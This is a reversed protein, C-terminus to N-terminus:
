RARGEWLGDGVAKAEAVVRAAATQLDAPSVAAPAVLEEFRSADHALARRLTARLDADGDRVIDAVAAEGFLAELLKHGVLATGGAIAVEGGTLGASHAFVVLMAVVGAANVGLSAAFAIAKRSHGREQVARTLRDLWGGLEARVVGPLDSGHGWLDPRDAILPASSPDAAWDEATRAAAADAQAVLAATLEDFASERASELPPPTGQAGGGRRALWAKLWGIRGSLFRAVDGAGAFEQWARMVEGRLFVGGALRRALSDLEADYSRRVVARLAASRREDVELDKAVASVTATLGDLAGRLAALKAERARDGDLADLAARLPAVAGAALGDTAADVEGELVGVVDRPELGAAEFRRRCDALILAREAEDRPLRNAVLLLPLGRDRARTLFDWPVADAYRQATTVFVCLDAAQLLEDAAARNAAEVSDLDPADVLALGPFAADHVALGLRDDRAMVGLLRGALFAEVEPPTVLVVPRRTTPRTVGSPSVQRGALANVLSSKGSGTSGLVVAVLPATLDAVRPVLYSELHWALRQRRADREPGREGGPLRPRAAEVAEDLEALAARLGSTDLTSV